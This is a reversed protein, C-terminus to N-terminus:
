YPVGLLNMSICTRVHVHVHVHLKLYAKLNTFNALNLLWSIYDSYPLLSSLLKIHETQKNSYPESNQRTIGPTLYAVGSKVSAMIVTLKDTSERLQAM